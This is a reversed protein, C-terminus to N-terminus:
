PKKLEEIFERIKDPAFESSKTACAFVNALLDGLETMEEVTELVLARRDYDYVELTYEFKGTVKNKRSIRAIFGCTATQYCDEFCTCDWSVKGSRHGQVLAEALEIMLKNREQRAM